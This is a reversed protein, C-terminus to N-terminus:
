KRREAPPPPPDIYIKGQAEGERERAKLYDYLEELSNFQAAFEAKIRYAEELIPDMQPELPEKMHMEKTHPYEEWLWRTARQRDSVARNNSPRAVLYSVVTTEVYVKPRGATYHIM